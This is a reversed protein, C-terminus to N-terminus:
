WAPKKGGGRKRSEEEKVVSPHGATKKLSDFCRKKKKKPLRVRGEKEQGRRRGPTGEGSLLPKRELSEEWAGMKKPTALRISAGSFHDAREYREKRRKTKKREIGRVSACSIM